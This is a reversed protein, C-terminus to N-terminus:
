ILSGDSRGDNLARRLASIQVTVNAGDVVGPWVTNLIEDKSVLDGNRDILLGLIDLARSGIPVPRFGGDENQRSLVCRRRDLRFGGFRVIDAGAHEEMGGGGHRSGLPEAIESTLGKVLKAIKQLKKQRRQLDVLKAPACKPLALVPHRLS